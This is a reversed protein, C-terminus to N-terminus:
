LVHNLAELLVPLEQGLHLGFRVATKVMGTLVAAPLGHGSVDAVYAILDRGATVLDVLDGGVDEKPLTQGYVEFHANKYDQSPALTNQFARMFGQGKQAKAPPHCFDACVNPGEVQWAQLLSNVSSRRQYRTWKGRKMLYDHCCPRFRCLRGLVHRPLRPSPLSSTQPSRWTDTRRSESGSPMAM